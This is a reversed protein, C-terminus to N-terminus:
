LKIGIMLVDDTQKRDGKWDEFANGFHQSMQEMSQGQNTQIISRIRQNGFKKNDSGGFQDPFGDSFFYLSEKHNINMRHTSFNTRTKYKGGGIPFKDGKIQVLEGDHNMYLPRNAGSYEFFNEKYNVRLLAIDMGDRTTADPDDQRLTKTVGQNLYDLVKGTEIEEESNIVDNLIFYGILSILAGPVGHGTCDVAAIYIDDNKQIFWPFDGSVVDRPKYFIFSDPFVKNIVTDNPLIATQIRKAYNISETIKKNNTRVENETKKRDTIDHSVMLVSEITGDEVAEPIASVQMIRVDDKVTPFELETIFKEQKNFVQQFIEKWSEKIENNLHVEDITKNLFYDTNRGTLNKIVPNIYYFRGENNVRTILDLSNESLAEMQSRMREEKEARRRETIDRSNIVIGQIAPDDLLNTGTAELWVTEGNKLKYEYQTTISNESEKLLENFMQQFTKISDDHVKEIDSKGILEDTAYGLITEVSPSVYRVSGDKEYITIVESANELLVQLRKQTRNVELIQDELRHNTRKLEEQTAEMEEANQRLIEQQLQLEESMKRSEQLLKVTRENVKINFITRAVIVSIEKVLSIQTDNFKELGAFELIGFVQENTILPLLLICSPKKDGLIGSTITVYDEPVETRLIIDQEAACQGVLGQALKFKGKLYKKKNYAYSAKMEFFVEDQDDDNLTYFAGQIAGVKNTIYGIIEDGLDELNNHLRLLQGIEAVGTVIWNREKDKKEAEQISNSMTILANGLIDDKSMPAFDADHNGEGIQHAFDATSKLSVVLDTVASAMEGIEDNSRRRINEPLIGKSVLKLKNKLSLIPNTLFKSFIVSILISFLIIVGGSKLFTWILPEVSADVEAKDMKVVMGWKLSPIYNWTALAKLNRYDTDIIFDVDDNNVAKQAAVSYDNDPDVITTLELADSHRLLNIYRILGDTQYCLIIEGTEGLGEYSEILPFIDKNVDIEVIFYGAIDFNDNTVPTCAYINVKEDASIYPQSYYVFGDIEDKVINIDRYLKGIKIDTLANNYSYRVEGEVDTFIINKYSYIDQINAITQLLNNTDSYIEGEESIDLDLNLVNQIALFDSKFSPTKKIYDINKELSKFVNEVQRSKLDSLLKFSEFYRKEVTQLSEVYSLYSIALVTSIVVSLLLLTIKTGIKINKFM